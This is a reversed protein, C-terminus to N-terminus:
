VAEQSPETASVHGKGGKQQKRSRDLLHMALLNVAMTVLIIMVAQVAAVGYRGNEISQFLEMSAVNRGPSILFAIAGVATMSSTFVTIFCTLFVPKLLPLVIGRLIEIRSAGLDQAAPELKEDIASFAANASKNSVSIQRFTYNFVIIAATGRIMLPEHSFAAVYGLGFFTGPIINPLSAVFEVVKMGPLKRRHTYYSLLIGLLSAAGGAIISYVISHWFSSMQSRPLDQFYRTTFQIEGSATNSVTSLLINGYKLAMVVFFLGVVGVLVWRISRPLEFTYGSGSFSKSGDALNATRSLTKRYFYFALIAPPIMLVSIASAKGLNATSIVQLYAETALVKYRGGIVIPTGFDALNMTFLTFLVSLIGPRVSPIVVRWLTQLPSAGLDRSALVQKLDIADFSGMLLLTAFSINGITQLAVIGQWGYPNISLGLLQYTILGRRGFLMIFALASVFPPSIMTLLLSRQIFARRRASATFTYLAICFAFITTLCSSLTTVWLSNQMLKLNASSMLDQYYRPTFEGQDFFSTAIVSLIPYLIFLAIGALLLGLLLWDLLNAVRYRGARRALPQNTEM